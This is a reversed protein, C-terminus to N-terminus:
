RLTEVTEGDVQVRVMVLDLDARELLHRGAAVAEALSAAQVNCIVAPKARQTAQLTIM